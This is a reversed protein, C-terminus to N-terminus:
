NSNNVRFEAMVVGHDSRTSPVRDRTQMEDLIHDNYVRAYEFEGIRDPNGRYFEQSFLIQDLAEYSGNFIHTYYTDRTAQRAQIQQATYLLTDWYPKKQEFPLRFFPAEGAIIQTTVSMTGDNVDGLVIVPMSTETIEQLILGRIAVSEAARRFLSRATGLSRHIATDRSEGDLFDPRKSKLHSVFVIAEHDGPLKVKAKLVPRSFRRIPIDVLNDQDGEDPLKLQVLSNDPFDVISHSELVDFTTALGVAPTKAPTQSENTALVVPEVGDFRTSNKLAEALAEKHFVEQFGVLSVEMEDLMSGIWRVKEIYDDDSYAPRSYYPMGQKVLNFVNFTAVRFDPM